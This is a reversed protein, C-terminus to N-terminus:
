AETEAFLSAPQDDANGSLPLNVSDLEDLANRLAALAAPVQAAAPASARTSPLLPEGARAPDVEGRLSAGDEISLRDAYINGLVVASSRLEVRGAARVDGELRGHIVVDQAAVQGRLLAAPGITLRAAPLSITGLLEGDLTFDESGSVDGTIRVSKGVITRNEVANM